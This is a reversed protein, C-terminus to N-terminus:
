VLGVWVERCAAQKGVARHGAQGAAARCVAGLGGAERVAAAGRAGDECM